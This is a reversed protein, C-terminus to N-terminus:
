CVNKNEVSICFPQISCIKYAKNNGRSQEVVLVHCFLGKEYSFQFNVLTGILLYKGISKLPLKRM